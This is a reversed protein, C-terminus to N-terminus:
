QRNAPAGYGTGDKPGVGMNGTGDGPGYTKGGRNLSGVDTGGTGLGTGTHLRQQDRLQNMSRIQDMRQSQAGADQGAFRGTGAHPGKATVTAPLALLAAAACVIFTKSIIQKMKNKEKATKENRLLLSSAV